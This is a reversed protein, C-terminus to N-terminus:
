IGCVETAIWLLSMISNELTANNHWLFTLNSVSKRNKAITVKIKISYVHAAIGLHRKIYTVWLGFRAGIARLLSL